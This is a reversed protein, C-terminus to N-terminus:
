HIDLGFQLLFCGFPSQVRRGINGTCHMSTMYPSSQPNRNGYPDMVLKYYTSVQLPAILTVRTRKAACTVTNKRVCANAHLCLGLQAARGATLVSSRVSLIFAM